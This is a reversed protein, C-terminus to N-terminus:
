TGTLTRMERWDTNLTHNSGTTIRYWGTVLYQSGASGAVSANNNRVIHGRMFKGSTPISSASTPCSNLVLGYNASAPDSDVVTYVFGPGRLCEGIGKNGTSFGEATFDCELYNDSLLQFKAGTLISTAILSQDAIRCINRFINGGLAFGNANQTLFATPSGNALYTGNAGRNPHVLLPDLDIVNSIFYIRHTRTNSSSASLMNSCDFVTNGQVLCDFAHANSTLFVAAGIGALQNQSILVKRTIGGSFQVGVQRVAASTLTPDVFGSRVYFTGYGLDSLKGSDPIDRVLTNGTINVHYNAPIPTTSDGNNSNGFYPYLAVIAASSTANEGPIAALGGAQQADGGVMIYPASSNLGDVIARDIMNKITNGTITVGSHASVGEIAGGASDISQVSIGQSMCFEITNGVISATQIGLLRIGQAFRIVNGTITYGRDVRNYIQTHGAIADDDIYEIRNGTVAVQSCDATNIGDRACYQIVCGQVAINTCQRLAIAMTRSRTVKIRTFSVTDAAYIQFPYSGVQSYNGGEGHGGDVAFDRFEISNLRALAPARYILSLGSTNNFKLISVDMGDGYVVMGSAPELSTSITALNYAGAPIYLRKANTRAHAWAAVVAATDDTVGDGVAGFDKVSVFERLKAQVNTAVAGTGAPQYATNAAQGSGVSVETGAICLVEDGATLGARFTISNFGTETYDIGPTMRLGNVYVALMQTGPTYTIQQLTFLTQGNTATFTERTFLQPTQPLATGYRVSIEAGPTPAVTFSLVSGAITYDAGPTLVLGDVVAIVNALAGPLQSLGFDTTTGDGTFSDVLWNSFALTNAIESVGYNRLREATEDWGLLKNSEPTPIGPDIVGSATVPLKLTRDMEERLQQIQMTTRDLQNELALPSFNGGSPLDLPQDYDLDGTISLKSGTPLPSGSLPYTVFGGPSTEQNPNLTVSYDANLVLKTEVGLANATTVAVDGPAFVKFTFPFVTAVGDGSFPGAKRSTSPITM